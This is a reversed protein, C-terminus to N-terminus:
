RRASKPPAGVTRVGADHAGLAADIRQVIAAETQERGTEIQKARIPLLPNSEDNPAAPLLEAPETEM